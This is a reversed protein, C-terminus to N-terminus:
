CSSTRGALPSTRPRPYEVAVDWRASQSNRRWVIDLLGDFYIFSHRNGLVSAAQLRLRSHTHESPSAGARWADLNAIRGARTPKLYQPLFFYVFVVVILVAAVH